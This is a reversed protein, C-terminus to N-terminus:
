DNQDDKLMREIELRIKRMKCHVFLERVFWIMGIVITVDMVDLCKM